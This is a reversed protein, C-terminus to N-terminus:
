RKRGLAARIPLDWFRFALWALGVAIALLIIALVTRSTPTAPGSAVYNMWVYMLPFHTIYIPYSIRGSFKCLNITGLGANSHAGALVILPFLFVVCTAEYIGNWKIGGAEPFAPVCFAVILVISLPLWGLRLSPLSDRARYLWLGIVFPFWLRLPGMWFNSWGWGGDLTNLSAGCAFLGAAGILAFVLLAPTALRRLVLAYLINGIYEQLLTWAPGNLTHTDEWRNPLPRAPLLLLGLILAQAIMPWTANQKGAAFPDFLYSILGLLTGLVVLPHLRVLRIRFFGLVTMRGWRDDYAYGIVFGSLAFFFDIALYAHPLLLKGQTFDVTIGQIHFLVVLLAASGRLGDLVEFHQKGTATLDPIAANM